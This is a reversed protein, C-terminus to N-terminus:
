HNENISNIINALKEPSGKFDNHFGEVFIINNFETTWINYIKGKINVIAYPGRYLDFGKIDIIELDNENNLLSKVKLILNELLKIWLSEEEYEISDPNNKIYELDIYKNWKGSENLKNFIKFNKIYKKM